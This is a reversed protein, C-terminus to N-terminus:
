NIQEIQDKLTSDENYGTLSQGEHLIGDTNTSQPKGNRTSSM